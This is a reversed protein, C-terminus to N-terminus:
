KRDGSALVARADVVYASDATVTLPNADFEVLGDGQEGAWRAIKEIQDVLADGNATKGRHGALLTALRTHRAILAAIRRRDTPLLTVRVDALVETLTGGLGVVLMHGFAPDLQIGVLVEVGRVMKQVFLEASKLGAGKAVVALRQRAALLEDANRLDIEVAGVDSKHLLQKHELKMAVPYGIAEATQQLASDSVDIPILRFPACAVGAKALQAILEGAPVPEHAEPPPAPVNHRHPEATVIAAPGTLLSTLMRVARRLDPVFAAGAKDLATQAERRLGIGAFVVALDLGRATDAALQVVQAANPGGGGLAVIVADLEGSESLIKLTTSLRWDDRWLDLLDFPNDHGERGLAADLKARTAASLSPVSWGYAALEDIGVVAAGGSSTIIAARKRAPRVRVARAISSLGRIVDFLEHYGDVIVLGLDNALAEYPARGGALRGSHSQAAVRGADTNGIKMAAVTKGLERARALSKRTRRGDKLAEIFLVISDTQEDEVLCDLYDNFGIVAENGTSILHSYGVQHGRHEEILYSIAAGSQSIMAVRGAPAPDEDEDTSLMGSGFTGAFGNAPSIVGMSNPGVLVLNHAKAAKAIEEDFLRAVAPDAGHPATLVVGVRGGAKRMEALTQPVAPPPVIVLTCDPAEPLDLLSGFATFGQIDKGKHAPNVVFITREMGRGYRRLINLIRWGYSGVTNSAGVVAVTRPNTLLRFDNQDM